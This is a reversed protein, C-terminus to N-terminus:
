QLESVAQRYWSNSLLLESHTGTGSIEGDKLVIIQDADMITYVRHAIIIIIKGTERRIKKINLMLKKESILDLNGTPEDLILIPTDRLLARSLDLRQKQGGSLGSSSGSLVTDFGQPLEKIFDYAGSLKAANTVEDETFNLRGYTIHEYITVGDFIQPVQPIYSILSMLAESNHRDVNIDNFFLSGSTPGRYGSILDIFTTKGSGSPGVIATLTSKKFTYSINSLANNQANNYRFSVNEFRLRDVTNIECIASENLIKDKRKNSSSKMDAFLLDVRDIPGISRNLSQKQILINSIIPVIRIMVIMYLLVSNISIKLYILAIYFMFLSAGIIIPELVLSIRAKILHITLTLNRQRETLEFYSKEEADATNSLKVLRPSQLRDLLFSVVLSGYRSNEKGAKTAVKVWRAPIIAGVGVVCIAIITLKVSIMLLLAISGIGSIITITFKIPLFVGAVASPLEVSSSNTFNGTGVTDYYESDAELYSQLLRDKMNKVTLSSYYIQIYSAFYLLVKSSLFLGFSLLLLVEITFDLGVYGIFIRIYEVVSSSTNSDTFGGTGQQNILEFIPLFMGVSVTEAIISVIAIFFLLVILRNSVGYDNLRKIWIM